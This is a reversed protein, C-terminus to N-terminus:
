APILTVEFQDGRHSLKAQQFSNGPRFDVVLAVEGVKTRTFRLTGQTIEARRIEVSNKRAGKSKPSARLVGFIEPQVEPSEAIVSLVKVERWLSFVEPIIWLMPIEAISPKGVRVDHISIRPTPLLHARIKGVSVEM